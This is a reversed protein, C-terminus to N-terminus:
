SKDFDVGGDTNRRNASVGPTFENVEHKSAGPKQLKCTASQNETDNWRIHIQIRQINLSRLTNM